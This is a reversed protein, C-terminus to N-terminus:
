PSSRAPSAPPAEGGSRGSFVALRDGAKRAYPTSPFDTVIRDLLRREAATAGQGAECVALRWLGEAIARGAPYEEVARRAIACAAENRHELVYAASAELLAQDAQPHHPYRGVFAELAHARAVGDKRRSARLEAEADAALDRGGQRALKDLRAPDPEGIAVETPVPPASSTRRGPELRVVALGSPVVPPADLAGAQAQAAPGGPSPAAAAPPGLRAALAEVRETLVEVSKKLALNERQAAALEARMGELERRAPADAGACGSLHLAAALAAVTRLFGL